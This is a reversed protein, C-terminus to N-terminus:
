YSKESGAWKRRTAEDMRSLLVDKANKDAGIRIQYIYRETEPPADEPISAGHAGTSNLFVLASNTRFPVTKVLRCLAPDVYFPSNGPSDRDADLRYLQTGYDERDGARVLYIIATLFGWQPDRHPPIVYGPRRLLIRGDSVTLTMGAEQLSAVSPCLTSIYRDLPRQFRQVLAPGLVPRVVSETLFEWTAISYAPAFEPPVQLRQKNVPRDEFFVRSPIAAIMAEYVKPPLLDSIVLHPFPDELLESRSVAERVHSGIREADLIRELRDMRARGDANERHITVLQETRRQVVEAQAALRTLAEQISRVERRLSRTAEALSDLREANREIARPDLARILSKLTRTSEALSDLREANRELARPDM